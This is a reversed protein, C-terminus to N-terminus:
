PGRGSQHRDDDDSVMEAEPGGAEEEYLNGHNPRAWSSLRFCEGWIVIRLNLEM